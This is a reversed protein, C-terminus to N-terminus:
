IPPYAGSCNFLFHFWPFCCVRMVVFSTRQTPVGQTRSQCLLVNARLTFLSMCFVPVLSELFLFGRYFKMACGNAGPSLCDRVNSQKRVLIVSSLLDIVPLLIVELFKPVYVHISHPSSDSCCYDLGSSLCRFYFRPFCVDLAPTLFGM